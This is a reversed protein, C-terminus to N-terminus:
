GLARMGPRGDPRILTINLTRLRVTEGAKLPRCMGSADPRAPALSYVTQELCQWAEHPLAAPAAAPTQRRLLALTAGRDQKDRRRSFPRGMRISPRVCVSERLQPTSIPRGLLVTYRGLRPMSPTCVSASKQGEAQRQAELHVLLEERRVQTLDAEQQVRDIVAPPVGLKTLTAFAQSRGSLGYILGYRPQLTTPDFDVAACAVHPTSVAFAKIASDHTTALETAGSQHFRELIAIRLPGGEMPDTGDGLEDLLVLSGSSAYQQM